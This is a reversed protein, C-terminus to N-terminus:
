GPPPVPDGDADLMTAPGEVEADTELVFWDFNVQESTRVDIRPSTGDSLDVEVTATGSPVPAFVVTTGDDLVSSTVGYHGDGPDDDSQLVVGCQGTVEDGDLVLTVCPDDVEDRGGRLEYGSGPPGVETLSVADRDVSDDADPRLVVGVTFSVVVLVLFGLAWLGCGLYDQRSARPSRRAPSAAMAAVMGAM